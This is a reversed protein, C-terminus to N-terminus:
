EIAKIGNAITPAMPATAMTKTRGGPCGYPPTDVNGALLRGHGGPAQNHWEAYRRPLHCEAPKVTM